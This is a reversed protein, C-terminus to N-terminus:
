EARWRRAFGLGALGISLLALTAPEPVSSIMAFNSEAFTPLLALGSAGSLNTMRALVKLDATNDSLNTSYVLRPLDLASNFYIFFGAGDETIQAAILNAATGAGFPTASDNDNDTTLLVIINVDTTPLNAM